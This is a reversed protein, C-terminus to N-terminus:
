GMKNFNFMMKNGDVSSKESTKPKYPHPEAEGSVSKLNVNNAMEDKSRRKRKPQTIGDFHFNISPKRKAFDLIAQEMFLSRAGKPVAELVKVVEEKKPFFKIGFRM